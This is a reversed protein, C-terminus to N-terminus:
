ARGQEVRSKSQHTAATPPPASSRPFSKASPAAVFDDVSNTGIEKKLAIELYDIGERDLRDRTFVWFGRSPRRRRVPTTGKRL